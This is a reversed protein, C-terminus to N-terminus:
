QVAAKDVTCKWLKHYGRSFGRKEQRIKEENQGPAGVKRILRKVRKQMNCKHPAYKFYVHYLFCRDCECNIEFCDIATQTWIDLTKDMTIYGKEPM